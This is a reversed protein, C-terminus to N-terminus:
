TLSTTIFPSLPVMGRQKMGRREGIVETRTKYLTQSQSKCTLLVVIFGKIKVDFLVGEVIEIRTRVPVM